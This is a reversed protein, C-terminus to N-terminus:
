AGCRAQSGGEEVLASIHGWRSYNIYERARNKGESAASFDPCIEKDMFNSHRRSIYIYKIGGMGINNKNM